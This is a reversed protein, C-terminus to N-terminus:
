KGTASTNNRVSSAVPVTEVSRADHFITLLLLNKWGAKSVRLQEIRKQAEKVADDCSETLQKLMEAFRAIEDVIMRFTELCKDFAEMNM